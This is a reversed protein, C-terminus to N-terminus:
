ESIPTKFMSSIITGGAKNDRETPFTFTIRLNERFDDFTKINRLTLQVCREQTILNCMKAVEISNQIKDGTLMCIKIGAEKLLSITEEVDDQLKDEIASCGVYSMNMEIEEFLESLKDQKQLHNINM